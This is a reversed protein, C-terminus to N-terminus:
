GEDTALHFQRLRERYAALVKVQFNNLHNTSVYPTIRFRRQRDGKALKRHKLTWFTSWAHPLAVEAWDGVRGSLLQEAWRTLTPLRSGSSLAPAETLRSLGPLFERVWPNAKLFSEGLEPSYVPRALGIEVAVYPNQQDYQLHREDLFVNTCLLERQQHPLARRTIALLTRCLWVRNPATFVLFDVDSDPLAAEKALTGTIALGRIFPFSGLILGSTPVKKWLEKSYLVKEERQLIGAARGRPFIYGRDSELDGTRLWPALLQLVDADEMVEEFALRALESPTLPHHFIDFYLILRLLREAPPASRVSPWANM